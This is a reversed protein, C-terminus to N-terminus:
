TECANSGATTVCTSLLRLLLGTSVGEQLRCYQSTLTGWILQMRGRQGPFTAGFGLSSFFNGQTGSRNCLRLPSDGILSLWANLMRGVINFPLKRFM